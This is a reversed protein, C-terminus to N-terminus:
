ANFLIFDKASITRMVFEATNSVSLVDDHGIGVVAGEYSVTKDKGDRFLMSLYNESGGSALQVQGKPISLGKIKEANGEFAGFYSADDLINWHKYITDWGAVNVGKFGLRQYDVGQDFAGFNYGGSAMLNLSGLLNDFALASDLDLLLQNTKSGKNSNLTKVYNDLDTKNAWAGISTNGRAKVAAIASESGYLGATEADSSAQSEVGFIGALLIANQFQTTFAKDDISYKTMDESFNVIQQIKSRDYAMFDRHILPRNTRLTSNHTVTDKNISSGQKYDSALHTVTLNVASATIGSTTLRSVYTATKATKDVATVLVEEIIDATPDGVLLSQGAKIDFNTFNSFDLITLGANVEVVDAYSDQIRGAERWQIQDSSFSGRGVGAEMIFEAMLPDAFGYVMDKYVEPAEEMLYTFDTILQGSQLAGWPNLGQDAAKTFTIAM